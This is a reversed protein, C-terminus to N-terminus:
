NKFHSSTSALVLTNGTSDPEAHEFDNIIPEYPITKITEWEAEKEKKIQLHINGANRLHKYLNQKCSFCYKNKWVEDKCLIIEHLSVGGIPIDADKTALNEITEYSVERTPYAFFPKENIDLRMRLAEIIIPKTGINRLSFGFLFFQNSINNSRLPSYRKLALHSYTAQINAPRFFNYWVTIGATVISVFLAIGGTAAGIIGLINYAM